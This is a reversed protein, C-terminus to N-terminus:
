AKPGNTSQKQHKKNDNLIQKVDQILMKTNQLAWKKTKNYFMWENTTSTKIQKNQNLTCKKEKCLKVM